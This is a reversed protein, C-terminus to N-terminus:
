MPFKWVSSLQPTSDRRKEIYNLITLVRNIYIAGIFQPEALYTSPRLFIFLLPKEVCFLIKNKEQSIFIFIYPYM